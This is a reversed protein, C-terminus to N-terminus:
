QAGSHEALVNCVFRTGYNRAAVMSGIYVLGLALGYGITLHWNLSSIFAAGGLVVLIIAALATLDRGFLWERHGEIVAVRDDVSRYMRYWLSNQEAPDDPLEGFSAELVTRDARPDTDLIESFARCGPLADNWRWYVLRTKAPASLLGNLMLMAVPGVVGLIAEQGTMSSFVSSFSSWDDVVVVAWFVAVNLLVFSWLVKRYSSKLYSSSM